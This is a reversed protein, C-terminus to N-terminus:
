QMFHLVWRSILSALCIVMFFPRGAVSPEHGTHPVLIKLIPAPAAFFYGDESSRPRAPQPRGCAVPAWSHAGTKKAPAILRRARRPRGAAPGRLEFPLAQQDDARRRSPRIGLHTYASPTARRGSATRIIFGQHLLFPEVVDELTNVDEQMTAAIAAVGAPGGDYRRILTGLYRRDLDDLGEPDVGELALSENVVDVSIVTAGKVQGFDRVRRLLRNAIRPTGRSRRAMERAAAPEVHVELIQASRLVIETLDDVDYFDLNFRLGFRDRLPASILGIRTTAGVLTFRKLPLPIAKAFPGKDLVFDVKFDEMAPYLYEEVIRPTRHIEDIFFVDGEELSTLMGMLDVTRELAPGSTTKLSGGM